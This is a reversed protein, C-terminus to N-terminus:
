IQQAVYKSYPDRKVKYNNLIFRHTYSPFFSLFFCKHTYSPIEGTFNFQLEFYYFDLLKPNMKYPAEVRVIFIEEYADNKENTSLFLGRTENNDQNLRPITQRYM